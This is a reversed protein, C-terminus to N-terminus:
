YFQRISRGRSGKTFITKWVLFYYSFGPHLPSQWPTPRSREKFLRGFWILFGGEGWGRTKLGIRLIVIWCVELQAATFLSVELYKALIKGYKAELSASLSGVMIPVITFKGRVSEMVQECMFLLYSSRSFFCFLFSAYFVKVTHWVNVYLDSTFFFKRSQLKNYNQCKRSHFDVFRNAVVNTIQFVKAIYPLQMEISHEDEDAELSM